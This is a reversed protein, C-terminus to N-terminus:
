GLVCRDAPDRVVNIYDVRTSYGIEPFAFHDEVLTKKKSILAEFIADAAVTHNHRPFPRVYVFGNREALKELLLRMTTSGAKPIRNYVLVMPNRPKCEKQSDRKFYNDANTGWWGGQASRGGSQSSSLQRFAVTPFTLFIIYSVVVGALFAGINGSRVRTSSPTAYAQTAM